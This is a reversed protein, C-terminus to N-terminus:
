FFSYASLLFQENEVPVLLCKSQIDEKNCSINSDSKRVLFNNILTSDSPYDYFHGLVELQTGYFIMQVM